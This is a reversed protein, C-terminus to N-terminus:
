VDCAVSSRWKFCMQLETRRDHGDIRQKKGARAREKRNHNKSCTEAWRLWPNAAHKLKRQGKNKWQFKMRVVAQEWTGRKSENFFRTRCAKRNRWKDFQRSHLVSLWTNCKVKWPSLGERVNVQHSSRRLMSVTKTRWQADLVRSHDPFADSAVVAIVNANADVVSVSGDPNDFCALGCQRLSGLGRITEEACGM